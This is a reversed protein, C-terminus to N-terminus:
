TIVMSFKHTGLRGVTRSLSADFLLHDSGASGVGLKSNYVQFNSYLVDIFHRFIIFLYVPLIYITFFNHLGVCNVVTLMKSKKCALIM